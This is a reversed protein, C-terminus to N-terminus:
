CGMQVLAPEASEVMQRCVSGLMARQNPDSAMQEFQRSAEAIQQKQDQPVAPCNMMRAFVAQCPAIGMDILGADAMPMRSALEPGADSRAVHLPQGAFVPAGADDPPSTAVEAPAEPGATDPRTPRGSASCGLAVCGLTVIISPRLFWIRDM